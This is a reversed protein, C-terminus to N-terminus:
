TMWTLRSPGSVAVCCAVRDGQMMMNHTLAFTDSPMNHLHLTSIITRAPSPLLRMITHTSLDAYV